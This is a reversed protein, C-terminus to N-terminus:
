RGSECVSEFATQLQKVNNTWHEMYCYELAMAAVLLVILIAYMRAKLADPEDKIAQRIM